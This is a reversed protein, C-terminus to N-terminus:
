IVAVTFSTGSFRGLFFSVSNLAIISESLSNATLIIWSLGLKGLSAVKAILFISLLDNKTLKTEDM